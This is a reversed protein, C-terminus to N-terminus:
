VYGCTGHGLLWALSRVNSMLTASRYVQQDVTALKKNLDPNWVELTGQISAM